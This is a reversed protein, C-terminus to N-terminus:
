GRRRCADSTYLLCVPASFTIKNAGWGKWHWKLEPKIDGIVTQPEESCSITEVKPAKVMFSYAGKLPSSTGESRLEGHIIKGIDQLDSRWILENKSGNFLGGIPMQSQFLDLKIETSKSQFIPVRIEEKAIVEKSVNQAVVSMSTHFSGTEQACSIISIPLALIISLNKM